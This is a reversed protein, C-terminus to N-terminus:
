GNRLAICSFVVQLKDFATGALPHKRKIRSVMREWEDYDRPLLVINLSLAISTEAFRM